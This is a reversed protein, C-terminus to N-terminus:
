RGDGDLAREVTPKLVAPDIPKSLYGAAGARLMRTKLEQDLDSTVIVVARALREERISAFLREGVSSGDTDPPLHMDLVVLDIRESRLLKLASEPAAAELVRYRPRLTHHLLRRQGPHDEVLLVTDM